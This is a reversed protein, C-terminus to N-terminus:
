PESGAAADRKPHLSGGCAAVDLVVSLVGLPKAFRM